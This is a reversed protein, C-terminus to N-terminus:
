APPHQQEEQDSPYRSAEVLARLSERLSQVIATWLEESKPRTWHESAAGGPWEQQGPSRGLSAARPRCSWSLGFFSYTKPGKCIIRTRGKTSQCREQNNRQASASAGPLDTAQDPLPAPGCGGWLRSRRPVPRDWAWCNNSPAGRRRRRRRCRCCSRHSPTPDSAAWQWPLSAGKARGRSWFPSVVIRSRSILTYIILTM